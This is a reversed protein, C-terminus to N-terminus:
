PLVGDPIMLTSGVPLSFKDDAFENYPYDIIKQPDGKYRAAVNQLTDGQIVTHEVGSVPLIRLSMGPEIADTKLTNAWRVTNVSISFMDAIKQLSDGPQVVYEIATTRPLDKEPVLKMDEINVAAYSGPLKSCSGAICQKDSVVFQGKVILVKKNLYNQLQYTTTGVLMQVYGQKNPRVCCIGPGKYWVEFPFDPSNKIILYEATDKNFPFLQPVQGTTFRWFIIGILGICLIGIVVFVLPNIRPHYKKRKKMPEM